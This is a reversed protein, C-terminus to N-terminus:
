VVWTEKWKVYDFLVLNEMKANVMLKIMLLLLFPM